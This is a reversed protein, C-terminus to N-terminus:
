LLSAIKRKRFLFLIVAVIAVVLLWGVSEAILFPAVFANLLYEKVYEWKSCPWSSDLLGCTGEYNSMALFTARSWLGILSVVSFALWLFKKTTAAIM